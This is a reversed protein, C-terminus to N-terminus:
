KEGLFHRLRYESSVLYLRALAKREIQRIRERSLDLKEGVEQLTRTQGDLLGYRLRLIRAERATLSNLLFDLTENLLYVDTREEPQLANEDEVFVDFESDGEDGVLEDLSLPQCAWRMMQYIKHPSEDMEAAIEDQTPQEGHAMELRQAVRVMERIRAGIYVPIRIVRSQNSLSRTVAQRIWWSAYTSFRNGTRHNYRDVARMLGVNGDQVLDAFPIGYGRYRKAINVVLRTNARALRERAAQGAEVQAQLQVYEEDTQNKEKLAQEAQRGRDIQQALLVEEDFTLLPEQSMEALYISFVDDPPINDLHTNPIAPGDGQHKDVQEHHVVPTVITSLGRRAAKLIEANGGSKALASLPEEHTITDRVAVLNDSEEIRADHDVTALGVQENKTMVGALQTEIM